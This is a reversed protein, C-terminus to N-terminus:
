LTGQVARKTKRQDYLRDTGGVGIAGREVDGGGVFQLPGNLPSKCVNPLVLPFAAYQNFFKDLALVQPQQYHARLHNRDYFAIRGVYDTISLIRDALENM